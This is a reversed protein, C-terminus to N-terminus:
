MCLYTNVHDSAQIRHIQLTSLSSKTGTASDQAGQSAFTNTKVAELDREYPDNMYMCIYIYIYIIYIYIIIYMCIIYIHIYTCM